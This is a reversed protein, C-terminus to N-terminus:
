YCGSEEPFLPRALVSYSHGFATWISVKSATGAAAIFTAVEAGTLTVCGLQPDSSTLDLTVPDLALPWAVGQAVANGYPGVPGVYVRMSTPGYPKDSMTRGLFASLNAVKDITERFAILRARAVNAAMDATTFQPYLAYASVRHTIGAVTTTFDSDGLDTVSAQDYSADAGLLGADDAAGLIKQMEEPTVRVERLNPLLPTSYSYKHDDPALLVLRGDGYLAFTPTNTLHFTQPVMGGGETLQMILDTAGTAAVYNRPKGGTGPGACGTALLGIALISLFKHM